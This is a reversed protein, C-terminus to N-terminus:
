IAISAVRDVGRWTFFAQDHTKRLVYKFVLRGIYATTKM